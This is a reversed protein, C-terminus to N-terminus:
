AVAVLNSTMKERMSQKVCRVGNQLAAPLEFLQVPNEDDLVYYTRAFSCRHRFTKRMVYFNGFGNFYFPFCSSFLNSFPHKFLEPFLHDTLCVCYVCCLLAVVFSFLFVSLKFSCVEPLLNELVPVVHQWCFRIM